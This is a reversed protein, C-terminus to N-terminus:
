CFNEKKNKGPLIEKNPIKVFYKIFFIQHMIISYNDWVLLYNKINYEGTRWTFIFINKREVQM